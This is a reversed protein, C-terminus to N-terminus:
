SKLRTLGFGFKIADMQIYSTKQVANPLTRKQPVGNIQTAIM